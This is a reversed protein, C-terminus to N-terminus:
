EDSHYLDISKTAPDNSDGVLDEKALSAQIASIAPGSQLIEPKQYTM